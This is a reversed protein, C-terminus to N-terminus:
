DYRKIVGRLMRGIEQYAADYHQQLETTLYGLDRAFELWVRTEDSSGLASYLFRKVEGPSSQKGMGEAINAAISKTARRLQSALEHREIAPFKLTLRHIELAAKYAKQYVALRHYPM